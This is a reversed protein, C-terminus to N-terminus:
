YKLWNFIHKNAELKSIIYLFFDMYICYLIILIFQNCLKNIIFTLHDWCNILKISTGNFEYIENYIYEHITIFEYAIDMIYHM